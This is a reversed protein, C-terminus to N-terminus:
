GLLVISLLIAKREGREEYTLRDNLRPFAGQLARMGWEAAQRASTAQRAETIEHMRGSNMFIDQSSKILFKNDRKSFVSDVVCRGGPGVMLM